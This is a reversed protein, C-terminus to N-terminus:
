VPEIEVEKATLLLFRELAAVAAEVDEERVAESPHHSIGGTCRVFLMSMETLTSIVVADHGAGSALLPAPYGEAILAEQWRQVLNQACFVTPSDQVLQCNLAIGRRACINKAVVHLQSACKARRTNDEHRIDLSLQVQGPVVNSAGPQVELQGVTAVLGEVSGALQEVALIFESAACLADHRLNMPLTGAHGQEGHFQFLLRQQGVISNVVALPMDREELIPGQEIHVECYGLLERPSWRSVSFNTPDPNCGFARLAEAITIGDEDQLTLQDPAFAGTIAKSGMYVSQYRLGEEDAFGLLEIAFPLRINSQHLRELCSLAVMVGLLGDYKGADRVSDLHSGLLLTKANPKNAEYRGILNGIADVEVVMGAARLWNSIVEHMQRMPQTAFRRTIQGPIESFTALLECRDIITRAASAYTQRTEM